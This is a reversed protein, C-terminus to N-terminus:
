QKEVDVVLRIRAFIWITVFSIYQVIWKANPRIRAFIWITVFGSEDPDDARSQRIRAFIWITVFGMKEIALDLM